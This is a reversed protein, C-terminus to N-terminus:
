RGIKPSLTDPKETKPKCCAGGNPCAPTPPPPPVPCEITQPHNQHHEHTHGEHGKIGVYAAAIGFALAASVVYKGLSPKHGRWKDLGYGIGVAILPAGILMGGTMVASSFVTGLAAPLAVCTILHSAVSGVSCSACINFIKSFWTGKSAKNDAPEYAPDHCCAEKESSSKM